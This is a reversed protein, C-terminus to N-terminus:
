RAKREHFIKPAFGYLFIMQRGLNTFGTQPRECPSFFPFATPIFNEKAAIGTSFVFFLAPV